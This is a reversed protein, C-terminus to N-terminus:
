RKDRGSDICFYILASIAIAFIFGTFINILTEM